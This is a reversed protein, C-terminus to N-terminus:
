APLFSTPIIVTYHEINIRLCSMLACGCLTLLRKVIIIILLDSNKIEHLTLITGPDDKISRWLKIKGINFSDSSSSNHHKHIGAILAAVEEENWVLRKNGDPLEDRLKHVLETFQNKKQKQTKKAPADVVIIGSRRKKKRKDDERLPAVDHHNGDKLQPSINENESSNAADKRRSKSKSKSHNENNKTQSSTASGFEFEEFLTHDLGLEFGESVPDPDHYAMKKTENIKKRM